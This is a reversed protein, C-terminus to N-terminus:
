NSSRSSNSLAKDAVKKAAEIKGQLDAVSRGQEVVTAKLTTLLGEVKRSDNRAQMAEKLSNNTVLWQSYAGVVSPYNHIGKKSLSTTAADNRVAGWIYTSARHIHDDFNIDTPTSRAAAVYERFIEKLVLTIVWWVSDKTNGSAILHNYTDGVWRILHALFAQSNLAIRSATAHLEFLTQHNAIDEQIIDAIEQSIQALSQEIMYVLGTFQAM